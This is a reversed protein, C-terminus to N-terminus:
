LGNPVAGYVDFIDLVQDSENKLLPEQSKKLMFHKSFFNPGAVLNSGKNWLFNKTQRSRVMVIMAVVFLVPLMLM